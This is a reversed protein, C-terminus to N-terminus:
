NDEEPVESIFAQCRRSDPLVIYYGDPITMFIYRNFPNPLVARMILSDDAEQYYKRIVEEPIIINAHLVDVCLVIRSPKESLTIKYEKGLKIDM